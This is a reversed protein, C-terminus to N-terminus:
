RPGDLTLVHDGPRVLDPSETVIVTTVGRRRVAADIRAALRPELASYPEDLVLVSPERFLARALALRQREGGGFNRGGPAVQATHAGGRRAVVEALGADSLAREVDDDGGDGFLTVNDAVSGPFLCPTQPVYGISADLHVQGAGPRLAGTILRLLTSKGSGAAGRIVLRQGPEVRLSVDRLVPRGPAYGFTVGTLEIGNAQQHGRDRATYRPDPEAETIDDLVGFRGVLDPLEWVNDLVTRATILFPALLIVAAAQGAVGALGAALALELATATALWPRLRADALRRAELDEQQSQALEAFLDADSCEAHVAAIRSLAVRAIGTRRTLEGVFLRRPGTARRQGTVRLATAVVAGGTAAVAVPWSSVCLMTVVPALFAVGALLPVVRHSLLTAATEVFRVQAVLTATFRRGVFSAPLTLLKELLERLRRGSVAVLVATILRRQWFALLAMAAAVVVLAVARGDAALMAALVTCVGLLLGALVAAAVTARVGALWEACIRVSSRRQRVAPGRSAGEFTLAIGSFETRFEAGRQRYRGRAPDNIAVTGDAAVSELVVFHNGRVLIIAPLGRLAAPDGVRLGRGPLGHARAVRLLDAATTGDRSVGCDERLRTASVAIGKHALIIGLCAPGCDADEVQGIVPTASSRRLSALVTM